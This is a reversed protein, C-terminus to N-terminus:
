KTSTVQRTSEGVKRRFVSFYCLMLGISIGMAGANLMMARRYVYQDYFTYALLLVTLVVSTMTLIKLIRRKGRLIFYTFLFSLVMGFGAIMMYFGIVRLWTILTIDMEPYLFKALDDEDLTSAIFTNIPSKQQASIYRQVSLDQIHNISESMSIIAVDDQSAVWNMLDSFEQLTISGNAEDNEVFDYGHFLVVILPQNYSIKRAAHVGPKLDSLLCTFPLFNLTSTEIVEGSKKKASITSFELEELARLTNSDYTTWPPLFINISTNLSNELHSKGKTLKEVQTEYDLGAFESSQDPNNNKHTYGHLGIDLIGEELGAKLIEAKEATLPIVDQTTGDSADGVFTYPIVGLTIPVDISRFIDIIESEIETDSNSSYDDYRFVVYIQKDYELQGNCGTFLLIFAVLVFIATKCNFKNDKM